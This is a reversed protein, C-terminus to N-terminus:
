IQLHSLPSMVDETDTTQVATSEPSTTKKTTVAEAATREDTTLIVTTTQESTVPATTTEATATSPEPATTAPMTVAVLRTEMGPPLNDELYVNPYSSACTANAPSPTRSNDTFSFDNYYNDDTSAAFYLSVFM